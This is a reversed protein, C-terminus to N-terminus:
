AIQERCPRARVRAFGRNALPQLPDEYLVAQGIRHEVVVAIGRDQLKPPCCFPGVLSVLNETQSIRRPMLGRQLRGM